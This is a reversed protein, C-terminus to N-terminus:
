LVRYKVLDDRGLMKQKKIYRELEKQDRQLEAAMERHKDLERVIIQAQGFEDACLRANLCKNHAIMKGMDPKNLKIHEQAKNKKGMTIRQM